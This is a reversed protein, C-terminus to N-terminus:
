VAVRGSSQGYDNEQIYGQAARQAAAHVFDDHIMILPRVIATLVTQSTLTTGLEPAWASSARRFNDPNAPM